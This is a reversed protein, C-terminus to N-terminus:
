RIINGIGGHMKSRPVNISAISNEIVFEKTLNAIDAMTKCRSKSRIMFKKYEDEDIKYAKGDIHVTSTKVM